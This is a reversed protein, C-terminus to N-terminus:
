KERCSGEVADWCNLYDETSETCKRENTQGDPCKFICRTKEAEIWEPIEVSIARIWDEHWMRALLFPTVHIRDPFKKDRTLAAPPEDLQWVRAWIPRLLRIEELREPERLVSLFHEYDKTSFMLTM